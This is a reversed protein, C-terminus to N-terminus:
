ENEGQAEGTEDQAADTSEETEGEGESGKEGVEALPTSTLPTDLEFSVTEGTREEYAAKERAFFEARAHEVTGPVLEPVEDQDKKKKAM